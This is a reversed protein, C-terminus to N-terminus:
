GTMLFPQPAYPISPMTAQSTLTGTKTLNKGSGIYAEGPNTNDIISIWRELSALQVRPQMTLYQNTIERTTLAKSNWFMFGLINGSIPEDNGNENFLTLSTPTFSLTEAFSSTSLAGGNAGRYLATTNTPSTTHVAAYFVWAADTFNGGPFNQTNGSSATYQEQRSNANLDFQIFDVAGNSEFSFATGVIGGQLSQAMWFCVSWSGTLAPLSSTAKLYNGNTGGIHSSM